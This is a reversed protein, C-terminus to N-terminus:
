LNWQVVQLESTIDHLLGSAIDLSRSSCFNQECFPEKQLLSPNDAWSLEAPLPMSLSAGASWCMGLCEHAVRSCM